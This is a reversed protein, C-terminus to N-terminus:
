EHWDLVQRMAAEFDEFTLGNKAGVVLDADNGVPHRLMGPRETAARYIAEAVLGPDGPEGSVLRKQAQRYSQWRTYEESGETMAAALASNASLRTAFQGPEVVSVRIGRHALEFHM